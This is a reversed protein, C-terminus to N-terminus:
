MKECKEKCRAAHELHENLDLLRSSAWDKVEQDHTKEVAKEFLSIAEKHGKVIMTCYEKDFEKGTAITLKKYAEKAKDTPSMPITVSKSGALVMLDSQMREHDEELIRGLERVEPLSGSEQALQGLHIEELNLEAAKVLFGADKLLERDDLTNANQEEALKKTDVPKENYGCSFVVMMIAIGLCVRVTTPIIININTKM